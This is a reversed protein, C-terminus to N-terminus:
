ASAAARADERFFEALRRSVLEPEDHAIWHSATPVFEVRANPVLDRPPEALEKGIHRDKEGWLVLVPADIRRSGGGGALRKRMAARYYNLMGTLAGERAFAERYKALDEETFAGARADNRFAATLLAFDDRACMREPLRPLQFAFMYWSKKFQKWTRLARQLAIPHPGNLIVLRRLMEPHRMAFQWAVGAGWDHGVVFAREEGCSRIIGAVDGALLRAAYAEVGRPKSSEGYGRMDPAVVRFGAAALAPIQRRWAYWFEPFGHLLVVLPGRGAEVYHLRVDGLDAIRHVLESM